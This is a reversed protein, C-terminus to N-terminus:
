DIDLIFELQPYVKGSPENIVPQLRDSLIDRLEFTFEVNTTNYKPLYAYLEINSKDMEYCEENRNIYYWQNDTPLTEFDCTMNVLSGVNPPANGEFQLFGIYTGGDKYFDLIRFPIDQITNFLPNNYANRLVFRQPYNKRGYCNKIIETGDGSLNTTNQHRFYMRYGIPNVFIDYRVMVNRFLIQEDPNFNTFQGIINETKNNLFTLNSSKLYINSTRLHPPSVADIISPSLISTTVRNESSSCITCLRNYLPSYAVGWYSQESPSEVIFWNDGNKSCMFRAGVGSGSVAFFLGLESIWIVNVWGRRPCEKAEWNIGDNSVLLQTEDLNNSLVVIKNLESSYCITQYRANPTVRSTWTIGDPSTMIRDYNGNQACAVFLNLRNCWCVSFWQNPPCSRSIWNVGGDDSTMVGDINGGGSVCVLRNLEPSYTIWRWDRIPGPTNRAVWNIGNQSTMIQQTTGNNAVAIFRNYTGGVWIISLWQLNLNVSSQTTWTIGDPSTMIRTDAGDISLACFLSLRNSWSISRWANNNSAPSATFILQNNLNNENINRIDVVKIKIIDKNNTKIINRLNINKFIIQSRNINSTGYYTDPVSSPKTQYNVIDYPSQSTTDSTRLYIRM